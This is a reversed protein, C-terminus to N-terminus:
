PSVKKKPARPKFQKGMSKLLKYVTTRSLKWERALAAVSKGGEIVKTAEEGTLPSRRRGVQRYGAVVCFAKWARVLEHVQRDLAPLDTPEIIEKYRVQELERIRDLFEAFSEEM